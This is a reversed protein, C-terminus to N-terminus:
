TRTASAYPTWPCDLTDPTCHESTLAKGGPNSCAGRPSRAPLPRRRSRDPPLLAARLLDRHLDCCAHWRHRRHRHLPPEGRGRGIRDGTAGRGPHLGNFDDPHAPLAPARGGARRRAPDPRRRTKARCIGRDPNREQGRPGHAGPPQDPFLHRHQPRAVVRAPNRRLRCLARRHGVAFPLTWREYQAALILFVMVIGFAFVMTATGSTAREQYAQGSWALSYDPGLVERAVEKWQKWRRGPATARRQSARSRPPPFLNFRQMIEPGATREFTLLSYLPVMAGRSSRVYVNRLDEPSGRFPAEAQLTVRYNRGFLTFDNVYLSGFTAQMTTFIDDIRVGMARAQERDVDVRYRPVAINFTNRVNALEPRQSAAQVLKDAMAALESSNGGGRSQLFADFGGTVSLGTIPPANVAMAIADPFRMMGLGTVQTAVNQAKLEENGRESWDKLRVFAVAASTKQAFTAIDMGSIAVVDAVAPNQQVMRALPESVAQTRNLAAGPPLIQFAVIYGQDEEPVLSGPVQSFLFWAAGLIAATIALGQGTHHLFYNVGGTYAKTTRDLGRNFIRFPKAPEQHGKKLLIACLAPTLTLAVLGSIVVSIAITIAFQQYM